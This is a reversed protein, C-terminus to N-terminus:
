EVRNTGPVIDLVLCSGFVGEVKAVSVGEAYEMFGFKAGNDQRGDICGPLPIRSGVSSM